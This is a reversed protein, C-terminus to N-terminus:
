AGDPAHWRWVWPFARRWSVSYALLMPRTVLTRLASAAVAVRKSLRDAPTLMPDAAHFREGSPRLLEHRPYETRYDWSRARWERDKAGSLGRRRRWIVVFPGAPFGTRCDAAIPLMCLLSWLVRDAVIWARSQAGQAPASM